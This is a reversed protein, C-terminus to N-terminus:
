LNVIGVPFAGLLVPGIKQGYAAVYALDARASKIHSVIDLVNVNEPTIVPLGLEQATSKVPTPALEKGRGKPRDPQSVIIAVEHGAGHISRLTPVAFQGSGFFAIRM